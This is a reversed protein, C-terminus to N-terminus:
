RFLLAMGPKEVEVDLIESVYSRGDVETLLRLRYNGGKRFLVKTELAHSDEFSVNAANEGIVEWAYTAGPNTLVDVVTTVDKDKCLFKLKSLGIKKVPELCEDAAHPHKYLYRIEAVSLSRKYLRIEDFRGPFSEPNQSAGAPPDWYSGYGGGGFTVDGTSARGRGLGRTPTINELQEGNVWVQCKAASSWHHLIGVVHIWRNTYNISPGKFRVQWGGNNQFFAFDNSAGNDPIYQFAFSYNCQMINSIWVERSIGGDHYLWGSFTLFEEEPRDNGGQEPGGIKFKGHADTEAPRLDWGGTNLGTRVGYGGKTGACYTAGWGEYYGYNGSMRYGNVVDVFTDGEDIEFPWHACIGDDVAVASSPGSVSIALTEATQGAATEAVCRLVYDGAASFTVFPKPDTDDSFSVVGAGEAKTWRVRAGESAEATVAAGLGLTGDLTLALTPASGAAETLRTVAVDDFSESVGNKSTFRFVYEGPIPLTVATKAAHPNDIVAGEGGAPASVLTWTAKGAWNTTIPHDAYAGISGSLTATDVAVSFDAGASVHAAGQYLEKVEAATLRGAYFRVDDLECGVFRNLSRSNAFLFTGYQAGALVFSNIGGSGINKTRWPGVGALEGNRYFKARGHLGNSSDDAFTDYEFSIVLHQWEESRFTVDPVNAAAEGQGFYYENLYTDATNGFPARISGLSSVFLSGLAALSRSNWDRKFWMAVAHDGSFSVKNTFCGLSDYQTNAEPELGAEFDLAGDGVIGGTPKVRSGIYLDNGNGSVDPTYRAEGVTCVENMPWHAILGVRQLRVDANLQEVEAATLATDYVLIRKWQMQNSYINWLTWNGICCTSEGVDTYEADELEAALDGNVYLRVTGIARGEEEAAREQVTLTILFFDSPGYGTGVEHESSFEGTASDLALGVAAKLARSAQPDYISVGGFNAVIFIRDVSRYSTWASRAMLISFTRSRMQPCTFTAFNGGAGGECAITDGSATAYQSGGVSLTRDANGGADVVTGPHSADPGAVWDRARWEAWPTPLEIAQALWSLGMLVFALSHKLANM